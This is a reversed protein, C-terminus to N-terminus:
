GIGGDRSKLRYFDALSNPVHAPAGGQTVHERMGYLTAVHTRIAHKVDAPVAAATAYGATYVVTLPAAYGENFVLYDTLGRRRVDYDTIARGDDDVVSVISLLPGRPLNVPEGCYFTATIRQSVLSCSMADMAHQTAADILELVYEREDTADLRLHAKVQNWTVPREAPATTVEWKV